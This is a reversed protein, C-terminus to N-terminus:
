YSFFLMLMKLLRIKEEQLEEDITSEQSNNKKKAFISKLFAM